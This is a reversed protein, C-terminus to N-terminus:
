ASTIKQEKLMMEAYQVDEPVDVGIGDNEAEVCVLTEGNELIRLQELQETQELLTRPWQNFQLLFDRKFLYVGLHRWITFNVADASRPFPILSRSFYLAQGKLNLTVKVVNPDHLQAEDTINYILTAAKTDETTKAKQILNELDAPLVLPEDGQINLVWDCSREALAEVIRDTGTKHEPSTLVVDAGFKEAAAVIRQDDTAVLVEDISPTQVAREWVHQIMAKGAIEVLPKGPFRTSAYRAPIIALTKQYDSSSM